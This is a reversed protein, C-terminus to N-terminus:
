SQPQDKICRVSFGGSRYGSYVGYMITDYSNFAVSWANLNNNPNPISSWINNNSERYYFPGDSFRDGSPIVSFNYIDTGDWATPTHTDTAKLKDGATTCSCEGGSECSLGCDPDANRALTQWETFAPIHWGTPCIGQQAASITKTGSTSCVLTYTGDGNDTSTANNCDYPLQLAESWEYLGGDTLCNISNNEYCYKEVVSNNVQCSWVGSDDGSVDHCNPESSGSTVQTGIDLNKALWCQSGILVTPYAENGYFLDDGCSTFTPIIAFNATVSINASINTDTRTATLIGDSWNVFYYGTAPIATIATGNFMYNVTQPSTGTISGNAGATYTLTFPLYDKICRVSFGSARGNSSGYASPVGTILYVGWAYLPDDSSPVTSWLGAYGGRYIFSGGSNRGGSPLASYNYIDSGDWTIPSHESTAKLKNGATACSCAGNDCDLECSPDSVQALTQYETFSPIHWGTPCIGQQVASITQAGSPCALTYTGNGNDTSTANNCDYPLNMAEAWEYLGGDTTCNASDDGYCYKEVLSNNVQCSWIGQDNGSLDHCGPESSGNNIKTGINLNEAFWCQSGISVTSYTQGGYSISNVGGCAGASVFTVSITHNATVNTFTYTTPTGVSVTDVLVDSILYGDDPTITFTKNSGYNVTDTPTITGHAGASSTITYSNIAFTATISKNAIINTDTREATLIGDSWTVFYYGTNPIATVTTANSGYYIDQSTTGTIKGNAGAIYSLVYKPTSSSGTNTFPNFYPAPGCAVKINTINTKAIIGTNDKIYCAQGLYSQKITVNYNTNTVLKTPFTFNSDSGLKIIIEDQNNNQLIVLGSLGTISGSITYGTSNNNNNNTNNAQNNNSQNNNNTNTNNQNNINKKNIYNRTVPGFYGIAPNIKNAKQFKILSAKTAKGFITTEKGKSGAGSKAVIFGNTNLYVQLQKVDNNISGLSLNHNFLFGSALVSHIFFVFLFLSIITLEIFLGRKKLM